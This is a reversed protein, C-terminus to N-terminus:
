KLNSKVYQLLNTDYKNKCRKGGSGPIPPYMYSPAPEEGLAYPTWEEIGKRMINDLIITLNVYALNDHVGLITWKFRMKALCSRKVVYVVKDTM